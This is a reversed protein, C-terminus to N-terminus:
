APQETPIAVVRLLDDAFQILQSIQTTELLDFKTYILLRHKHCEVHVDPHREFFRILQDNFVERIASENEGRLYYKSSFIPYANFDIDKGNSLESVKSWLSEPELAFDPLSADMDSVNVVTIHTDQQAQRAGQTLTIDAVEIKGNESFKM